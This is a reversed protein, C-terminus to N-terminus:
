LISSLCIIKTYLSAILFHIYKKKNWFSDDLHGISTTHLNSHHTYKTIASNPPLFFISISYMLVGIIVLVTCGKQLIVLLFTDNQWRLLTIPNSIKKYKILISLRTITGLLTNTQVTTTHVYSCIVAFVEKEEQRWNRCGDKGVDRGGKRGRWRSGALWSVLPLSPTIIFPCPLPSLSSWLPSSSPSSSPSSPLIYLHPIAYTPM